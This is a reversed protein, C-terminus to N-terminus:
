ADKGHDLREYDGEIINADGPRFSSTDYKGAPPFARAALRMRLRARVEPVLLFFGILDTIFGPIILLLGAVALCIGDFIERQPPAGTSLKRRASLLTEIGQKWVLSSGILASLICLLIADFLGILGAVKIFLWIEAFPLLLILLFPM